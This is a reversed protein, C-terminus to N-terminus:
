EDDDDDGVMITNNAVQILSTLYEEENPTFYYELQTVAQRVWAIDAHTLSEDNIREQLVTFADSFCTPSSM